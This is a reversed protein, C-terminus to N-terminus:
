ILIYEIHEKKGFYALYTSAKLCVTNRYTSIYEHYCASFITAHMVKEGLDTIMIM